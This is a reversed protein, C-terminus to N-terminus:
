RFFSYGGGFVFDLWFFVFAPVEQVLNLGPRLDGAVYLLVTRKGVSYELLAPDSEPFIEARFSEAVM